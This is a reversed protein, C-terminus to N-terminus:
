EPIENVIRPIDISISLDAIIQKHGEGQLVNFTEQLRLENRGSIIVKAGIKSCEIAIARGIGSSAGTIFITKGELSFPNYM